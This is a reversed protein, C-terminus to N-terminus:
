KDFQTKRKASRINKNNVSKACQWWLKRAKREQTTLKAMRKATGGQRLKNQISELKSLQKSCRKKKKADAQPAVLSLIILGITIILLSRKM